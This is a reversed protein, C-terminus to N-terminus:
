PGLNHIKKELHHHDTCCSCCQSCRRARNELRAMLQSARLRSFHMNATASSSKRPWADGGCSYCRELIVDLHYSIKGDRSDAFGELPEQTHDVEGEAEEGLCLKSGGAV